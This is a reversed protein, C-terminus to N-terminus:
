EGESGSLPQPTIRIGVIRDHFTDAMVFLDEEMWDIGIPLAFEDDSPGYAGLPMSVSAGSRDFVRLMSSLGDVVYINGDGGLTVGAPGGLARVNHEERNFAPGGYQWLRDFDPSLAFVRYNNLDSIYIIGEDDVAIGTPDYMQDPERGTTGWQGLANGELDMVYLTDTDTLVYLRDQTAEVCRPSMVLVERLKEGQPSFAIIAMKQRDAVYIMGDPGVDIGMPVLVDYEAIERTDGEQRGDEVFVRGNKGDKDFVLIRGADPLTVYIADDGDYAVDFPRTGEGLAGGGVFAQFVLEIGPPQALVPKRTPTDTVSRLVYLLGCLLLLLILIMVVLLARTRRDHSSTRQENPATTM